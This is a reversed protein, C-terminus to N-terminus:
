DLWLKPCYLDEDIIRLIREKNNWIVKTDRGVIWSNVLNDVARQISNRHVWFFKGLYENSCFFEREEQTKFWILWYLSAELLSYGDDIM